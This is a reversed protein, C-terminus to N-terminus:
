DTQDFNDGPAPDDPPAPNLITEMWNVPTNLTRYILSFPMTYIKKFASNDVTPNLLDGTVHFTLTPREKEGALIYGVLPIKSINKGAQTILNIDLDLQQKFLDVTGIGRLNLEPSDLEFSKVTGIGQDYDLGLLISDVPLGHIDYNPLSFTILAPLTNIVALMNNLLSHDEMLTNKIQFIANFKDFTGEAIATMQGGTFNASQLLANMFTDNLKQGLLTFSNGVTKISIDGKAYIISLDRKNNNITLTLSDALIRNNKRFFLFSNEAQLNINPSTSDSPEDLEDEPKDKIFQLITPINYGLNSSTIEITDGYHLHFNRNIVMDLGAKSYEGSLFYTSQSKNEQVFLDYYSAVQGTFKLSSSPDSKGLFFTGGTIKLRQLLPSHGLLKSSDSFNVTWGQKEQSFLTIGLKKLSIKTSKEDRELDFILKNDLDLFPTSTKRAFFLEDLNVTGRKTNFDFDAKIFTNFLDDAHLQTKKLRLQGNSFLLDIPSLTTEIGASQWNSKQSTTIHLEQDYHLALDYSDQNLSFFDTEIRHLTLQMEALQQKISFDGGFTLEALPPIALRTPPLKGALQEFVFPASFAELQLPQSGLTWHSPSAGIYSSQPRYHYSLQLPKASSDLTLATEKLSIQFDKVKIDLDVRHEQPEIFGSVLASFLKKFGIDLDTITIATDQLKIRGALVQYTQGDHLFTSEEIKFLGRAELKKRNLNIALTLDTDTKGATQLFPLQIDYYDVLRIIDANARARTKIYATLLINDPDNFNIDLWSKGGDQGYFKSRHPIIDLVGKSFNVTTYDTKIPELGPAFTYECDDVKISATLTDLIAAPNNLPIKGSVSLLQYRSGKLYDTIWRQINHSLGFLDVFPKITTITGSERGQFSLENNDALISLQVPLCGALNAELNGNIKFNGPDVLITGTASSKFKKSSLELFKIRINSQEWSLTAEVQLDSSSLILYLPQPIDKKQYFIKGSYQEYEFSHVTLSSILKQWIRITELRKTSKKEPLNKTNKKEPKIHIKDIEVNFGNDWTLSSGEMSVGSLSLYDMNLGNALFLFVACFVAILLAALFLLLRSIISSFLAM